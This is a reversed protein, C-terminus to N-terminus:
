DSCLAASLLSGRDVGAHGRSGLDSPPGGPLIRGRPACRPDSSPGASAAPRVSRFWPRTSSPPCCGPCRDDARCRAPLTLGPIAPCGGSTQDLVAPRVPAPIFSGRGCSLRLLALCWALSLACILLWHRSALGIAALGRDMGRSLLLVLVRYRIGIASPDRPILALVIVIPRAAGGHPRCDSRQHGRSVVGRGDVGRRVAGLCRCRALATGRFVGPCRCSREELVSWDEVGLGIWDDLHRLRATFNKKGSDLHGAGPILFLFCGRSYRIFFM